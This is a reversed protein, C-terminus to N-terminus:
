TVRDTRRGSRGVPRLGSHVATEVAHRFLPKGHLNLFQKPQGM